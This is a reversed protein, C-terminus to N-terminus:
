IEDPTVNDLFGTPSCLMLLSVDLLLKRDNVLGERASRESFDLILSRQAQLLEQYAEKTLRLYRINYFRDPKEIDKVIRELLRKSWQTLLHNMLPGKRGWSTLGRIPFRIKNEAHLEILGFEDLKKLYRFQQQQTLKYSRVIESLEQREIALRWYFHFYEPNQLFFTQQEEPLTVTEFTRSQSCAAILDSFSVDAAKCIQLLKNLSCDRGSFIKKIGSESGGIQQAIDRYTIKRAKLIRKLTEIILPFNLPELTHSEIRLFPGM